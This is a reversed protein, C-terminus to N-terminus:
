KIVQFCRKAPFLFHKLRDIIIDVCRSRLYFVEPHQFVRMYVRRMIMYGMIVFEQLSFCKKKGMNEYKLILLNEDLHYSIGFHDRWFIVNGASYDCIRGKYLDFAVSLARADSPKAKKFNLM